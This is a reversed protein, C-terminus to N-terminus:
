RSTSIKLIKGKENVVVRVLRPMTKNGSIRVTGSYILLYTPLSRANKARTNQSRIKPAKGILEPFRHYVKNNISIVIKKDM